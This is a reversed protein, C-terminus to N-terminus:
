RARANRLIVDARKPLESRLEACLDELLQADTKVPKVRRALLDAVDASRAAFWDVWTM